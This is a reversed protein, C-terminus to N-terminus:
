ASFLLELIARDRLSKFNAGGAADLIREVESNELFDVKILIENM